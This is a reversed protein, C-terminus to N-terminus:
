GPAPRSGHIRVTTNMPGPRRRSSALLNSRRLFWLRLGRRSGRRARGGAPRLRCAARRERVGRDHWQPMAATTTGASTASCRICASARSRCARRWRARRRGRRRRPPAVARARVGETGTEAIFLPRSSAHRPRARVIRAAPSLDPRGYLCTRGHDVWQNNYYYNIGVSISISRGTRRTRAARKGQCPLRGSRVARGYLRRRPASTSTPGRSNRAPHQDAARRRRLARAADVSASRRSRPSRRRPRPDGEIRRRARARVPQSLSVDGRGGRSSASKTSRRTSWPVTDTEDAQHAQAVARAIRPSATSSGRVSCIDVGNPM